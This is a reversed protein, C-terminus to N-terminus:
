KSIEDGMFGFVDFVIFNEDEQIKEIYLKGDDVFMSGIFYKNKPLSFMDKFKFDSSLVVISYSGSFSLNGSFNDIYEQDFPEEIIRYYLQKQKDYKISSYYRQSMQHKIEEIIDPVFKGPNYSLPQVSLKDGGYVLAKKYKYTKFDFIYIDNDIPYSVVMLSDIPNYDHFIPFFQMGWIANKYSDPYSVKYVKTSDKINLFTYSVEPFEQNNYYEKQSGWSNLIIEDKVKFMPRRGNVEPRVGIGEDDVFYKNLIVNNSDLLYLGATGYSYLFVSDLSEIYFSSIKGVGNEGEQPFSVVKDVEPKNFKYFYISNNKKNLFSFYKVNDFIYVRSESNRGASLSDLEFIVSDLMELKYLNGELPVM